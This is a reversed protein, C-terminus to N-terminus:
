APAVGPGLPHRFECMRAAISMVPPASAISPKEPRTAAPLIVPSAASRHFAAIRSGTSQPTATCSAGAATGFRFSRGMPRESASTLSASHMQMSAAMIPMREAM